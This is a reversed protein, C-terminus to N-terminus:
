QVLMNVNQVGQENKWHNGEAYQTMKLKQGLECHNIGIVNIQQLGQKNEVIKVKCLQQIEVDQLHSDNININNIRQVGQENSIRDSQIVQTSKYKELRSDQIFSSNLSQLGQFNSLEKIKAHQTQEVDVLRNRGPGMGTAYQQLSSAGGKVIDSAVDKLDSVLDGARATTVLSLIGTTLIALIVNTKM